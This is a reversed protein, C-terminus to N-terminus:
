FFNGPVAWLLGSQLNCIKTGADTGISLSLDNLEGLFTRASQHFEIVRVTGRLIASPFGGPPVQMFKTLDLPASPDASSEPFFALNFGEGPQDLQVSSTFRRKGSSALCCSRSPRDMTARSSRIARPRSDTSWCRVVM